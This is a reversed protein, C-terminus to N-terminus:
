VGLYQGCKMANKAEQQAELASFLFVLSCFLNRLSSFHTVFGFYSYVPARYLYRASFCGLRAAAHCFPRSWERVQGTVRLLPAPTCTPTTAGPCLGEKYIDCCHSSAPFTSVTLEMYSWPHSKTCAVSTGLAEYLEHLSLSSKCVVHTISCFLGVTQGASM